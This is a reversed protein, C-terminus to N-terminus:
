RGRGARQSRGPYGAMGSVPRARASPMRNEGRQEAAWSQMKAMLTDALDRDHEFLTLYSDRTEDYYALALLAEARYEIAQYFKPHVNLAYNYAGIANKYDGLQRLTYGLENAARYHEPLTKLVSAFESQAKEYERKAREAYRDARKGKGAERAAEAKGDGEWAREKLKLGRQYGAEAVQEPSSPRTEIPASAGGGSPAATVLASCAILGLGFALRKLKRFVRTTMLEFEFRSSMFFPTHAVAPAGAGAARLLRQCFEVARTGTRRGGRDDQGSSSRKGRSACSCRQLVTGWAAIFALVLRCTIAPIRAISASSTPRMSSTKTATAPSTGCRSRTEKAFPKERLEVDRTATRRMYALPTQWRLIEPVMNPILGPDARLKDYEGPNENLALVGGTLSNRTTDNGGVILLILNGLYEM